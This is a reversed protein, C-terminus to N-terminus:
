NMICSMSRPRPRPSSSSLSTSMHKPAVEEMEKYYKRWNAGAGLTVIQKDADWDFDDFATMSIVVDRASASGFGQSRVTYTLDTTSLYKVVASLTEITRPRIVVSPHENRAASWTRSELAYSPHEPNFYEDSSVLTSLHSLPDKYSPSM